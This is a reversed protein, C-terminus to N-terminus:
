LERGAVFSYDDVWVQGSQAVAHVIAGKAQPPAIATMENRQWEPGTPFVYIEAEVLSGPNGDVWNVQLRALSGPVDSRVYHSLTYATGPTVEIFQTCGDDARTLLAVKGSHSSSGSAAVQPRGYTTWGLPTRPNQLEEFGGNKILEKGSSVPGTHAVLEDDRLLRYVAINKRAYELETFANLFPKQAILLNTAPGANRNILLHSIGLERMLRLAAQGDPAEIAPRAAPSNPTEMIGPAYLRSEEGISFIHLSYGRSEQAMFQYADYAALIRSLYRDRSEVGMAVTYPIREPILWYTALWLPLNLGLCALVLLRIPGGLSFRGVFPWPRASLTSLAHGVLAYVVPLTAMLYRLYQATYAWILGAALLLALLALTHRPLPRGLALLPLLLFGLGLVSGPMVEVFPRSNFTVEWPLSLLTGFATGIGFIGLNLREDVPAWLPSRFVNNLFPFVPNGTELYRLVPWPAAALAAVSGFTLPALWRRGVTLLSSHPTLLSSHAERGDRLAILTVVIGLPVLFVIANMKTSIAFGAMLGAVILWALRREVLWRYAAATALFCYCALAMEIYATTAEWAVLPTTAYLAAGFLGALGSSFRKGFTFIALCTVAWFAFSTLKAATQDAILMALLYNMDTGLFFWSQILYPTTVFRQEEIYLKPLALHYNLPDFQIEPAAAQIFVLVTWGALVGFLPLQFWQEGAQALRAPMGLLERGLRLRQVLGRWLLLSLAALLGFVLWRNILGLLALGLTLHSYLGLALAISFTAGELGAPTDHGRFLWGLLRDGFAWGLMVLWLVAAAAGWAQSGVVIALALLSAIVFAAYAYLTCLRRRGVMGVLLGLGVVAALVEYTRSAQRTGFTNSHSLTETSALLYPTTIAVLWVLPILALIDRWAALAVSSRLGHTQMRPRGAPTAEGATM